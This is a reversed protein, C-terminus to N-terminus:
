VYRGRRTGRYFETLLTGHCFEKQYAPQEGMLRKCMRVGIDTMCTFQVERLGAPHRLLALATQQLLLIGLRSDSTALYLLDLCLVDDEGLTRILVLGQVHGNLVLAMSRTTDIQDYDAHSVPYNNQLRCQTLFEQLRFRELKSLAVVRPDLNTEADKLLPSALIQEKTLRYQPYTYTMVWFGRIALMYDMVATWPETEPYTVTLRHAPKAASIECAKDLLLNGIGHRRYEPAVWLWSLSCGDETMDLAATAVATNNEVCGLLVPPLQHQYPPLIEQFMPLNQYTILTIEM